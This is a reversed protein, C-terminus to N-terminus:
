IDKGRIENLMDYITKSDEGLEDYNFKEEKKNYDEFEKIFEDVNEKNVRDRVIYKSIELRNRWLLTQLCQALVKNSLTTKKYLEMVVEDTIIRPNTVIIKNARWIGKEENCLVVEADEPVIVDYITDGRHLWRLIKDESGFNFGGMKDPETENPNWNNSINIEDLKYEFGGANSKTGDMVRVCKRTQEEIVEFQLEPLKPNKETIASKDFIYYPRNGIVEINDDNVYITDEEPLAVVKEEKSLNLLYEKSEADKEKTRNTYHCLISYGNLVDYGSIDKLNVANDDDLACSKLNKGFIIAGASGGFIIGNNNIFEQIKEYAGSIKLDKLLKFTNGGGIFIACYDELNKNTIESAQYIMEISPINIDKLENTIWEYCSSYKDSEMALPIYLLPKTHDIIENLKNYTNTTQSGDGGGCLFIRM